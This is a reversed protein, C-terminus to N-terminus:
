NNKAANKGSHQVEGVDGVIGVVFDVGPEVFQVVVLVVALMLDAILGLAIHL